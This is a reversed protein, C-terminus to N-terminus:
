FPAHEADLEAPRLSLPRSHHQFVAVTNEYQATPSGDNTAYSWGDALLRAKHAGLSLIPEINLVMGPIIRLGANDGRVHPVIPEEHMARGIGHGTCERIVTCGHRQAIEEIATGIDGITNGVRCAHIGALAAQWSARLLRRIKPPRRGVCFSWAIDGNWGGLVASVDITIVDGDSLITENPIGHAAVSNISTCVLGPFGHVKELMPEFQRHELYDRCYQEIDATSHGPRLWTGIQELLARLLMTTQEIRAVEAATKLPINPIMGFM